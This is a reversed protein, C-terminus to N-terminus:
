QPHDKDFPDRTLHYEGCNCTDVFEITVDKGLGDIYSYHWDEYAFDGRDPPDGIVGGKPHSDITNPPGYVIYIRGRDTKWGPVGAAFHTNAYALRRYHEEKFKNETAGPTPNRREWFAVVFEDRQKDASLTRFSAREENTIIWAVDERLLKKYEEKIAPDQMWRPAPTPNQARVSGFPVAVSALLLGVMLNQRPRMINM